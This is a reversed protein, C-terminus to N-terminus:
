PKVILANYIKAFINAVFTADGTKSITIARDATINGILSKFFKFEEETEFTLLLDIPKYDNVKIQQAKM